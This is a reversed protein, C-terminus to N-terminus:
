CWAPRTSVTIGMIVRFQQGEQRLEGLVTIARIGEAKVTKMTLKLM